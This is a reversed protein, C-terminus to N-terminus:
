KQCAPAPVIRISPKPANAPPRRPMKPDITSDGQVVTMGCTVTQNATSGSPPLPMQPMAVQGSPSQPAPVGPLQGTFLSAFPNRQQAGGAAFASPPLGLAASAIVAAILPPM